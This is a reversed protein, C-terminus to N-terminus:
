ATVWFKYSNCIFYFSFVFTNPGDHYYYRLKLSEKNGNEIMTASKVLANTASKVATTASNVATTASNVATTASNSTASEVQRRSSRIGKKQDTSMWGDVVRDDTARDLWQAVPGWKVDSGSVDDSENLLKCVQTKKTTFIVGYYSSSKNAPGAGKSNLIHSQTFVTSM